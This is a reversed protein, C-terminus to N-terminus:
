LFENYANLQSGFSVINSSVDWAEMILSMRRKINEEVFKRVVMLFSSSGKLKLDPTGPNSIALPSALIPPSILTSEM